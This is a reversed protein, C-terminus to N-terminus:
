CFGFPLLLPGLHKQRSRLPSLPPPPPPFSADHPFRAGPGDRVKLTGMLSATKASDGAAYAKKLADFTKQASALDAMIFIQNKQSAVKANKEERKLTHRTAGVVCVCSFAQATTSPCLYREHVHTLSSEKTSRCLLPLLGDRSSLSFTLLHRQSPPPCNKLEYKKKPQGSNKLHRARENRRRGQGWQSGAGHRARVKQRDEQQDGEDRGRRGLDGLFRHLLIVARDDEDNPGKTKLGVTRKTARRYQSGARHHITPAAGAVWWGGWGM